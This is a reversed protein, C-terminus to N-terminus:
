INYAIFLSLFRLDINNTSGGLPLTAGVFQTDKIIM